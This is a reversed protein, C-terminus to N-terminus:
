SITARDEGIRMQTNPLIMLSKLFHTKRDQGRDMSFRCTPLRPHPFCVASFVRVSASDSETLSRSRSRRAAGWLLVSSSVGRHHAKQSGNNERGGGDLRGGGITLVGRKKLLLQARECEGDAIEM